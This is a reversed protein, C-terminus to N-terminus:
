RAQAPHKIQRHRGKIITTALFGYKRDAFYYLPQMQSPSTVIWTGAIKKGRSGNREYRNKVNIQKIEDCLVYTSRSFNKRYGSFCLALSPLGRGNTLRVV